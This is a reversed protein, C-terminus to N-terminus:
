RALTRTLRDARVLDASAVLYSRTLEGDREFRFPMRPELTLM